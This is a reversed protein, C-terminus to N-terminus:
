PRPPAIETSQISELARRCNKITEQYPAADESAWRIAQELSEEVERYNKWANAATIDRMLSRLQPVEEEVTESIWIAHKDACGFATLGYKNIFPVKTSSFDIGCWDQAADTKPWAELSEGNLIWEFDNIGVEPLNAVKQKELEGLRQNLQDAAARLQGQLNKLEAIQKKLEAMTM